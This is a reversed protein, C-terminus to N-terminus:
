FYVLTTLAKVREPTELFITTALLPEKLLNFQRKVHDQGMYLQLIDKSTKESPNPNMLLCFTSENEIEHAIVDEKREMGGIIRWMTIKQLPIANKGPRGRPKKLIVGPVV